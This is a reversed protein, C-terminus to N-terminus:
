CLDGGQTTTVRTMQPTLTEYKDLLLIGLVYFRLFLYLPYM